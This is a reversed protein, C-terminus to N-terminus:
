KKIALEVTRILRMNEENYFHIKNIGPYKPIVCAALPIYAYTLPQIKRDINCYVEIFEGAKMSIRKFQLSAEKKTAPMALVVMWEKAFQPTDPRDTTGFIKNFQKWDSIVMCNIGSKLMSADGAFYYDQMPKVAVPLPQAMGKISMLIVAGAVALYRM